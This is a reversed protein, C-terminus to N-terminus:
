SPHLVRTHKTRSGIQNFIIGIHGNGNPHMQCTHQDNIVQIRCGIYTAFNTAVPSTDYRKASFHDHWGSRDRTPTSPFLSWIEECTLALNCLQALTQIAALSFATIHDALMELRAPTLLASGHLREIVTGCHKYFLVQSIASNAILRIEEVTFGPGTIERILGQFWQHQPRIFDNVLHDLARTPEIMERAMIRSHLCDPGDEAIQFLFNRIYRAFREEASLTADAANGPANPGGAPPPATERLVASYLAEKDGFHYSIAAV